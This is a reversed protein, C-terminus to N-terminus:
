HAALPILVYAFINLFCTKSTSAAQSASALLSYRDAFAHCRYVIGSVSQQSREASRGHRAQLGLWCDQMSSSGHRCPVICHYSHSRQTTAARVRYMHCKLRSMRDRSIFAFIDHQRGPASNACTSFAVERIFVNCLLDATTM